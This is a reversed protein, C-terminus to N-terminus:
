KAEWFKGETGCIEDLSFTEDKKLEREIQCDKENSKTYVMGDIPSKYSTALRFCYHKIENKMNFKIEYKVYHKCDKCLKVESM